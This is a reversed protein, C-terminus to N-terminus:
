GKTGDMPLLSMVFRKAMIHEVDVSSFMFLRRLCISGCVEIATKCSDVDVDLVFTKSANSCRGGRM